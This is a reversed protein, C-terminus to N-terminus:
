RQERDEEQEWQAVADLVAQASADSSLHFKARVESVTKATLMDFAKRQPINVSKLRIKGKRADNM